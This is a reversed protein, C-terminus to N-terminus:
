VIRIQSGNDLEENISNILDRIQGQSFTSNDSGSLQIAVNRSYSPTAPVSSAGGGGGGGGGSAGSGYNTSMINKVQALGAMLTSAALTFRLGPRGVLSPDKLVETYALYSNIGAQAASAVKAIGVMKKGGAQMITAINGFLSNYHGLTTAKEAAKINALAQNYEEFSRLSLANAEDQMIQKANLSEQLINQQEQYANFALERESMFAERLSNLRGEAAKGKGGGGGGSSDSPALMDELWTTDALNNTTFGQLAGFGGPMGGGMSGFKNGFAGAIQGSGQANKMGVYAKYAMGMSAAMKAAQAAAASIPTAMDVGAIRLAEFAGDGLEERLKKANEFVKIMAPLQQDNMVKGMTNSANKAAITSLEVYKAYEKAAKWDKYFKIAAIKRAADEVEKVSKAVQAAKQEDLYEDTTKYFRLTAEAQQRILDLLKAEEETVGGKVSALRSTLEVLQTAAEVSAITGAPSNALQEQFNAYDAILKKLETGAAGFALTFQSIDFFKSINRTSNSHPSSLFSLGFMEGIEEQTRKLSDLVGAQQAAVVVNYFERVSSGAKIFSDDISDTASNLKAVTTELNSLATNALDSQTTLAKLDDKSSGVVVGLAAFGVAVGAGLLAGLKGFSGLLQPLQQGFTTIWSTGMSLQVAVDQIQYGFQQSQGRAAKMARGFASVKAGSASASDGVGLINFKNARLENNLRQTQGQMTKQSQAFKRMQAETLKGSAALEVMVQELNDVQAELQKAARVAGSSDGTMKTHIGQEEAM